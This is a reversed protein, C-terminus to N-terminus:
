RGPQTEQREEQIPSSTRFENPQRQPLKKLQLAVLILALIVFHCVFFFRDSYPVIYKHWVLLFNRFAWSAHFEGHPTDFNIIERRVRNNERIISLAIGPIRSIRHRFSRPFDKPLRDALPMLRDIFEELEAARKSLVDRIRNHRSEVAKFAFPLVLAFYLWPSFGDLGRVFLAVLAASLTVSWAKVQFPFNSVSDIKKQILDWEAWAYELIPKESSILEPKQPADSVNDAADDSSSRVTTATDSSPM